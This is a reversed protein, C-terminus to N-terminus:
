SDTQRCLGFGFETGHQHRQRLALAQSPLSSLLQLPHRHNAYPPSHCLNQTSAEAM